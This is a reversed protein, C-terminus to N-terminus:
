TEYATPDDGWEELVELAFRILDQVRQGKLHKSPWLELNEIRNDDRIGNKHHVSEEPKLERGLHESMVLRHVMAGERIGGPLRRHVRRYGHKTTYPNGWEGLPVAEPIETLEVGKSRQHSHPNCLGRVLSVRGCGKFRCPAGGFEGASRRAQYHKSCYGRSESVRPCGPERCKARDPDGKKEENYHPACKGRRYRSGECGPVACPLKRNRAKFDSGYHTACKGKTIAKRTCETVSCDLSGPIGGARRFRAYHMSCMGRSESPRICEQENCEKM